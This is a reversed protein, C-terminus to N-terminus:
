SELIFKATITHGMHLAITLPTQGIGDRINILCGSYILCRVLRTNYSAMHIVTREYQDRAALWEDKFAMVCETLSGDSTYASTLDRLTEYIAKFRKDLEANVEPIGIKSVLESWSLNSTTM